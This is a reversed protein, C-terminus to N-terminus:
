RRHGSHSQRPHIQPPAHDQAARKGSRAGVSDQWKRDLCYVNFSQAPEGKLPAIDGYDFEEQSVLNRLEDQASKWEPKPPTAFIQPVAGWGVYSALIRKEEVTAPRKEQELQRLLAIAAINAKARAEPSGSVVRGDPIRYDHEFSGSQPNSARPPSNDLRREAADGV